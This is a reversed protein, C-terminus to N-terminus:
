RVVVVNQALRVDKPHSTRCDDLKVACPEYLCKPICTHVIHVIGNPGANELMRHFSVANM